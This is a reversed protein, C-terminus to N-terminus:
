EEIEHPCENYKKVIYDYLAEATSCVEQFESKGFLWECVYSGCYSTNEDSEALHDPDIDKDISNVLKDMLRSLRSEYIDLKDFAESIEGNFFEDFVEMQAVFSEKAIM